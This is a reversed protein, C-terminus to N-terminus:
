ESHIFKFNFFIYILGTFETVGHQLHLETGPEPDPDTGPEPRHQPPPPADWSTM